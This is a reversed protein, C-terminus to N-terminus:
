ETDGEVGLEQLRKGESELTSGLNALLSIGSTGGGILFERGEVSVIAVFRKEGLTVTDTVRLRKTASLAYKAHIWDWTRVLPSTGVHKSQDESPRFLAIVSRLPSWRGMQTLSCAILNAHFSTRPVVSETVYSHM